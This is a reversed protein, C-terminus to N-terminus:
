DQAGALALEQVLPQPGADYVAGAPASGASRVRRSDPKASGWDPNRLVMALPIGCWAGFFAVALPMNLWFWMM